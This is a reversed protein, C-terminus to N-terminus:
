QGCIGKITNAAPNDGQLLQGGQRLFIPPFTLLVKCATDIAAYRLHQQGQHQRSVM